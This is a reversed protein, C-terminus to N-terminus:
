GPSLLPPPVAHTVAPPVHSPHMARDDCQVGEHSKLLAPLQQAKLDQMACALHPGSSCPVPRLCGLAIPCLRFGCAPTECVGRAGWVAQLNRGVEEASRFLQCCARAEDPLAGLDLLRREM